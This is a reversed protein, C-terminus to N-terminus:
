LRFSLGTNLVGKYGFGAEFFYSLRRGVQIGIPYYAMNMHSRNYDRRMPGYYNVGNNYGKNYFDPDYQDTENQYTIGFGAVTYIRIMRHVYYCWTFEVATTYCTRVFAGKVTTQLDFVNGGIIQNDLWDGYQQEVTATFGIYARKFIRFKYSLNVDWSTGKNSYDYETPRGPHYGDCLYDPTLTGYGLSIYQKFPLRLSNDSYDDQSIAKISYSFIFIFLILHRMNIWQTIVPLSAINM